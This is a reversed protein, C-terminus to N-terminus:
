QRPPSSATPNDWLYDAGRRIADINTQRTLLGTGQPGIWGQSLAPNPWVHQMLVGIKKTMRSEPKLLSAVEGQGAPFNGKIMDYSSMGGGIKAFLAQQKARGLFDLFLKAEKRHRTAANAAYTQAQIILQQDQARRGPLRFMALNLKPNLAQISGVQSTQVTMVAQNSAILAGTQEQTLGGVAGKPFCNANDMDVLGQLSQRWGPTTTFKVKRKARLTDWNPTRAYVNSAALTFTIYQSGLPEGIAQAFPIKGAASIRRCMNLVQSFTRPITLRLQEFLDKNYVVGNWFMTVPYGYVKGKYSLASKVSPYIRKVWPSASLDLLKDAKALPWIGAITTNGEPAFFVDPGGGAQLETLLKQSIAAGSPLYSANIKVDPYVREFNAILVRMPPEQVFHSLVNLTVVAHRHTADSQKASSTSTGVILATTITVFAVLVLRLRKRLM